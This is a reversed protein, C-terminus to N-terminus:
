RFLSTWPTAFLLAALALPACVAVTRAGELLRRSRTMPRRQAVEDAYQLTRLVARWCLSVAVAALAVLALARAVWGATASGLWSILSLYAAGQVMRAVAVAGALVILATVLPLAVRLLTPQDWVRQFLSRWTRRELSRTTLLTDVRPKHVERYGLVPWLLLVDAALEWVLALARAVMTRQPAGVVDVWGRTPGWSSLLADLASDVRDFLWLFRDDMTDAAAHVGMMVVAVLGFPMFLWRGGGLFRSLRTVRDYAGRAIAPVTSLM